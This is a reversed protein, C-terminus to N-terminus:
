PYKNSISFTISSPDPLSFAIRELVIGNKCLRVFKFFYIATSAISSCALCDEARWIIGKIFKQLKEPPLDFPDKEAKEPKIVVAGAKQRVVKYPVQFPSTKDSQGEPLARRLIDSTVKRLSAMKIYIELM